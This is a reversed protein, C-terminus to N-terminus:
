GTPPTMYAYVRSDKFARLHILLRQGNTVLVLDKEGKVLMNMLKGTPEDFSVEPLPVGPGVSVDTVDCVHAGDETFVADTAVSM